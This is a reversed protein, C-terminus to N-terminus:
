GTRHGLDLADHRLNAAAPRLDLDDQAGVRSKCTLLQHSPALLMFHIKDKPQGAVGTQLSSQATLRSLGPLLELLRALGCSDEAVEGISRPFAPRALAPNDPLGLM